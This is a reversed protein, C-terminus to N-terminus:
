KQLCLGVKVVITNGIGLPSKTGNYIKNEVAYSVFTPNIIKYTRVHTDFFWKRWLPQCVLIFIARIFHNIQPPYTNERTVDNRNRWHTSSTLFIIEIQLCLIPLYYFQALTNASYDMLYRMFHLIVQKNQDKRSRQKHKSIQLPFEFSSQNKVKNIILVDKLFSSRTLEDTGLKLWTGISFLQSHIFLKLNSLM